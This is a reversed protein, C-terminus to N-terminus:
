RNVAFSGKSAKAILDIVYPLANMLAPKVLFDPGPLDVAGLLREFLSICLQKKGAGDLAEVQEVMEMVTPVADWLGAWTVKELAVALKDIDDYLKIYTDDKQEM